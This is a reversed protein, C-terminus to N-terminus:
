WRDPKQTFTRITVNEQTTDKIPVLIELKKM